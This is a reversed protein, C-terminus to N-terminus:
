RRLKRWGKKYQMYCIETHILDLYILIAGLIGIIIEGTLLYAFILFVVPIFSEFKNMFDIPRPKKM